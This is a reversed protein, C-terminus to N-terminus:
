RVQWRLVEALQEPGVLGLECLVQGMLRGSSERVAQARAMDGSSLLGAEVLMVDLRDLSDPGIVHVPLGDRVYIKNTQGTLERVEVLGTVQQGRVGVLLRPFPQEQLTGKMSAM